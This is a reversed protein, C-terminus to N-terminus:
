APTSISKAGVPKTCALYFVAVVLGVIICCSCLLLTFFTLLAFLVLKEEDPNLINEKDHYLFGQMDGPNQVNEKNHYLCGQINGPNLVNEKKDYLCGQINGPNQQIPINGPYSPINFNYRATDHPQTIPNVPPSDYGTVFIQFINWRRCVFLFSNKRLIFLHFSNFFYITLSFLCLLIHPLINSICTTVKGQNIRNNIYEMKNKSHM